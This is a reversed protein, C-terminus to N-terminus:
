HLWTTYYKLYILYFSGAIIVLVVFITGANMWMSTKVMRKTQNSQNEMVVKNQELTTEVNGLTSKIDKRTQIIQNIYKEVDKNVKTLINKQVEKRLKEYTMDQLKVTSNSSLIIERAEEYEKKTLKSCGNERCIVIQNNDVDLDEFSINMDSIDAPKKRQGELELEIREEQLTQNIRRDNDLNIPVPVGSSSETDPDYFTIPNLYSGDSRTNAFTIPYYIKYTNQGAKEIMVMDKNFNSDLDSFDAIIELNNDNTEATVEIIEGNAYTNSESDIHKVLIASIPSSALIFALFFMMLKNTKM